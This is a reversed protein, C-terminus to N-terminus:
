QNSIAHKAPLIVQARDGVLRKFRQADFLTANSAASGWHSPLVWRPRMRDVVEVAEEVSLRAGGDIPLIAIDPKILDLEPIQGTNGAYYIDYYHMSLVFGLGGPTERGPKYAPVAKISIRDLRVSHWPLLTQVGPIHDATDQSGILRTDPSSLKEVDAISCHDYQDNSILIVDALFASTVVRWPNIYVIPPGQLLFSGHGLWQLTDIM